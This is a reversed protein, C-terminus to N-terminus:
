FSLFKYNEKALLCMESLLPKWKRYQINDLAYLFQERNTVCNPLGFMKNIEDIKPTNSAFCITPTGFCMAAISYHYRGSILVEAYKIISLWEEFSKADHVIMEPIHDKLSKIVRPEEDNVGSASGVLYVIKHNHYKKLIEEAIYESNEIDYNVAGSICIYKDNYRPAPNEKFEQVALPLSDFSLVANVGLTDKIIQQSKKERAAIFDCKSYAKKYYSIQKEKNNKPYCSHNIISVKKNFIDKALFIVFFIFRTAVHISNITGEGNIVVYDSDEIGKCLEPLKKKFYNVYYLRAIFRILPNKSYVLLCKRPSNELKSGEKCSFSKISNVGNLGLKSKIAFSTGYCGWHYEKQTDNILFLKM